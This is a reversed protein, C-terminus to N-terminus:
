CGVMLAVTSNREVPAEPRPSSLLIVGQRQSPSSLFLALLAREAPLKSPFQTSALGEAGHSKSLGAWSTGQCLAGELHRTKLM